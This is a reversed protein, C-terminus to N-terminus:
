EWALLREVQQPSLLEVETLLRHPTEINPSRPEPDRGHVGVNRHLRLAGLNLTVITRLAPYSPDIVFHPATLEHRMLYRAGFSRSRVALEGTQIM